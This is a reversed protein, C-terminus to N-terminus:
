FNRKDNEPFFDRDYGIGYDNRNGSGKPLTSPFAVDELNTSATVLYRMFHDAEGILSPSLPVGYEGALIIALHAKIAGTAYRPEELDTDASEVPAVGKLVGTADWASLLDNLSDLGDSIEAATLPTEAAKVGIKSFARDIIKQATAM